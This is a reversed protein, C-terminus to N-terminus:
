RGPRQDPLPQFHRAAAGPVGLSYEESKSSLCSLLGGEVPLGAEQLFTLSEFLPTKAAFLSGSYCADAIVLKQHAECNSLRSKIEEYEVRNQYGDSNTPV